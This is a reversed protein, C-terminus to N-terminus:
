EFKMFPYREQLYTIKTRLSKRFTQHAESDPNFPRHLLGKQVGDVEDMVPYCDPSIWVSKFKEWIYEVALANPHVLDEGYFRYDRLEDMMIEYAPFYSVGRSQARSSLLSWLASILHAKSQQNEVFGDKLHRVPSVTFIINAKPNVQNVLDMLRNLSSQIEEPSLLRKKFEKQPVKHCNAVTKGLSQHGYVWATGLTIVVHTANELESKTERLRQNLHNLLGEKSLANLDSHADFCHWIGNQEFVEDVHYTKGSLAREVLNELALPHFLIGFPNQLQQFKFYDLKGGMNEVFCSGLLLIKSSYDIPHEAKQLPVITQLKM